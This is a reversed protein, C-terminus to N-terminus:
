VGGTDGASVVSSNDSQTNYDANSEYPTNESRNTKESDSNAAVTIPTITPNSSLNDGQSKRTSRKARGESVAQQRIRATEITIEKSKPDRNFVILLTIISAIIMTVAISMVTFAM